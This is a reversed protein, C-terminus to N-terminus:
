HIRCLHLLDLFWSIGGVGGLEVLRDIKAWTCMGVVNCGWSVTSSFSFLFPGRSPRVNQKTLCHCVAWFPHSSWYSRSIHYIVLLIRTSMVTPSLLSVFSIWGSWLVGLVPPIDWRCLYPHHMWPDLVPEVWWEFTWGSHWPETLFVPVLFLCVRCTWSSM